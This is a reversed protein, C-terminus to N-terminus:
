VNTHSFTLLSTKLGAVESEQLKKEKPGSVRVRGGWGGRCVLGPRDLRRPANMVRRVASLHLWIICFNKRCSKRSPPPPLLNALM